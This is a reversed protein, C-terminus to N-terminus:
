AKWNPSLLQKPCSFDERIIDVRSAHACAAKPSSSLLLLGVRPMDDVLPDSGSALAASPDPPQRM